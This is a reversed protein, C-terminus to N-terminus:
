RVSPLPDTGGACASRSREERKAPRPPNASQSEDAPSLPMVFLRVRHDGFAEQRDHALQGREGLPESRGTEPQEEDTSGHAVEHQTLDALVVVDVQRGVGSGGVDFASELPPSVRDPRLPLSESRDAGLSSITVSPRPRVLERRKAGLGVDVLRALRVDLEGVLDLDVERPAVERDVRHGEFETAAVRHGLEDIGEVPRDM